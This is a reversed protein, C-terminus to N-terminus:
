PQVQSYGRWPGYFFMAKGYRRSADACNGPNPAFLIRPIKYFRTTARHSLQQVKRSVHEAAHRPLFKVAKAVRLGAYQPLNTQWFASLPIQIKHACMAGLIGIDSPGTIQILDPNFEHLVAAVERYRRLLMLDFEHSRDLPFTIPSRRLEMRTASGEQVVQDCRGAHVILLPINRERAYAAFNRAVVAVGDVEHFADPFFAVRPYPGNM